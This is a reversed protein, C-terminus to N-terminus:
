LSLLCTSIFDLDFAYSICRHYKSTKLYYKKEFMCGHVVWQGSIYTTHVYYNTTSEFFLVNLHSITFFIYKEEDYKEEM